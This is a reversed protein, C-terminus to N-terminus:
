VTLATITVTYVNAAVKVNFTGPAGALITIVIQLAAQFSFGTAKAGVSDAIDVHVHKDGVTVVFSGTHTALVALLISLYSSFNKM